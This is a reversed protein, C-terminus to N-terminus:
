ESAIELYLNMASLFIDLAENNFSESFMYTREKSLYNNLQEQKKADIIQSYDPTSVMERLRKKIDKEKNEVNRIITKAYEVTLNGEYIPRITNIISWYNDIDKKCEATVSFMKKYMCAMDVSSGKNISTKYFFRFVQKDLLALEERLKNQEGTLVDIVNQAERKKYKKGDFDFTKIGSSKLAKL